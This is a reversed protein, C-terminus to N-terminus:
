LIHLDNNENLTNDNNKEEELIFDAIERGDATLFFRDEGNEDQISDLMGKNKLVELVSQTASNAIVDIM